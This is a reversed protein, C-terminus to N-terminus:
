VDSRAALAAASARSEDMFRAADQYSAEADRSTARIQTLLTELYSAQDPLIAAILLLAHCTGDLPENITSRELCDLVHSALDLRVSPDLHPSTHILLGYAHTLMVIPEDDVLEGRNVLADCELGLLGYYLFRALDSPESGSPCPDFAAVGILWCEARTLDKKMEARACALALAARARDFEWDSHFSDNHQPFLQHPTLARLAGALHAFLRPGSAGRAPLPPHIFSRAADAVDTRTHLALM